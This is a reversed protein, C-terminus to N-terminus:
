AHNAYEILKSTRADAIGVLLKTDTDKVMPGVLEVIQKKEAEDPSAFEGTSGVIVIGAANQDLYYQVNEKMGNNNVSYDEHMPTILVPLAEEFQKKMPKMDEMKKMIKMRRKKMIM